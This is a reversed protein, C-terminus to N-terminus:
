RKLIEQIAQDAADQAERLATNMDKQNIAMERRLARILRQVEKDAIHPPPTPSSPNAFIAATNKDALSPNNTGFLKEIEPDDLVTVRSDKSLEIQQERSVVMEIVQMAQEKHKSPESIILMDALAHRGAGVKDEFTPNTVMDWNPATGDAEAQLLDSVIKTVWDPQMAQIHGSVFGTPGYAYKTGQIYGPTEYMQQFLGMIKRYIPIDILAKNTEPDVFPQTYPSVMHDPFRLDIGIYQVGEDERTLLAHLEMIEGWLMGDKPYAVGFRDFIDRNYFLAGQNMSFPLGQMEGPELNEVAKIAAPNFASLDINFKKILDSIDAPLDLQKLPMHWDNDSVIIDPIEGAAVLQDIDGELQQLTIHPHLESLPKLFFKEYEIESLRVVHVYLKLTVPDKSVEVAPQEDNVIEEDNPAPSQKNSTQNVNTPNPKNTEVTADPQSSSCGALLLGLAFLVCIFRRWKKLM